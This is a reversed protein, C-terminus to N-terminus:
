FVYVQKLINYRDEILSLYFQDYKTTSIFHMIKSRKMKEIDQTLIYGDREFLLIHQKNSYARNLVSLLSQEQLLVKYGDWPVGQMTQHDWKKYTFANLLWEFDEKSEFLKMTSNNFGMFGSNGSYGNGNCRYYNEFLENGFKEVLKGMMPKDADNYQDAITFPIKNTVFHVIERYEVANFLIDDDYTLLYDVGREVCLMHYLIIHYIWEWTKYNELNPEINRSRVYNELDENTYFFLDIDAPVIKRAIEQMELNPNNINLHIEAKNMYKRHFSIMKCIEALAVLQQKDFTRWSRAVIFDKM